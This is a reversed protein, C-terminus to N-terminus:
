SAERPAQTMDTARDYRRVNWGANWFTEAAYHGIAGSPRPISVSWGASGAYRSIM